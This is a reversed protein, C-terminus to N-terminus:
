RSIDDISSIRLVGDRKSLTLKIGGGLPDDAVVRTQASDREQIRWGQLRDYSFNQKQRASAIGTLIGGMFVITESDGQKTALATILLDRFLAHGNLTFIPYDIYAMVDQDGRMFKAYATKAFQLEERQDFSIRVSSCGVAFLALFLFLVFNLKLSKLIMFFM